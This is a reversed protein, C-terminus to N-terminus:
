LINYKNNKKKLCFVAYSIHRSQLESTHEESRVESKGANSEEDSRDAHRDNGTLANELWRLPNVDREAYKAAEDSSRHLQGTRATPPTIPVGRIWAAGPLCVVRIMQPTAHRTWVFTPQWRRSRSRM